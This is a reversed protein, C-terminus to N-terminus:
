DQSNFHQTAQLSCLTESFYVVEMEMTLSYALCSVLLLLNSAPQSKSGSSPPSINVWLMPSNGFWMANYGILDWKDTVAM